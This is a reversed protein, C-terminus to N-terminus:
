LRIRKANQEALARDRYGKVRVAAKAKVEQETAGFVFGSVLGNGYLTGTFGPVPKSWWHKRYTIMGIGDKVIKVEYVPPRKKRKMTM